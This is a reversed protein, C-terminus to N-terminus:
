NESISKKKERFGQFNLTTKKTQKLTDDRDKGKKKKPDSFAITNIFKPETKNM